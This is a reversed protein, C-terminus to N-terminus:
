AAGKAETVWPQDEPTWDQPQKFVVSVVTKSEPEVILAVRGAQRVSRGEYQGSQEYVLTPSELCARIEEPTVLRDVARSLFHPSFTWEAVADSVATVAM